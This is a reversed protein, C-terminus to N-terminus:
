RVCRITGGGIVRDGSYCVVAQGPAVAGVPELPRIVLEQGEIRAIAPVPEMRYRTQITVPSEADGPRLVVDDAVIDGHPMEAASGVVLRNTEPELSIVYLPESSAIGLGKRQGVTYNVLGRHTGLVIGRSDVVPGPEASEPHRNAVLEAHGERGLFCVDQSDKRAFNPLGFEEALQRVRAKTHDGLPFAIHDIVPETLRYLFYSQDKARDTGRELWTRDQDLVLRAYHGTAVTDAGLERAYDFLAGFKILDNCTVCPNPTSGSAYSRAFPGVVEREFLSRCDVVHHAIGLVECVHAASAIAGSADDTGPLMEMTIGAVDHGARVMLAAVVSSDVGGSMAVYVRERPQVAPSDTAHM